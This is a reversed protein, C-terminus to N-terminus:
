QLDIVTGGFIADDHGGNGVVHNWWPRGHPDGRRLEADFETVDARDGRPIISCSDWELREGRGMVTSAHKGVIAVEDSPTDFAVASM